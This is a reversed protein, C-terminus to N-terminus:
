LRRDSAERILAGLVEARGLGRQECLRDLKRLADERLWMQVSRRGTRKAWRKIETYGTDAAM